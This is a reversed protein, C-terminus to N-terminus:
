FSIANMCPLQSGYTSGEYEFIPDWGFVAEGRQRVIKGNTRGEFLIPEKGPGECYAFTCVAQATKDDYAALM